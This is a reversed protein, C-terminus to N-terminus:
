KEAPVQKRLVEKNLAKFEVRRNLARGTADANSAVPQGEGYGKVTFQARDLAPFTRLLYDRVAGARRESLGQNYAEAGQSDTHGGIEIKLQPWNVLISGVSDLYQHSEPKLEAKGSAFKITELRILGADLLMTEMAQCGKADVPAGAPTNPCVDVGDPVGDGDSDAPCGTADVAAGAPTNACQDIGDPVGDGDGDIPCGTADVKAGAPTDACKDVGDFVGDGDSDMPCGTADVTAGSPTNACQDIGDFVGDSDGDIPCGRADVRAGRPTAACRDVRNPIGDRDDDPIRGFLDFEIGATYIYNHRWDDPDIGIGDVIVDRFEARIGVRENMQIKLGGGIEWGNRKLDTVDEDIDEDSPSFELETWGGVVYPVIMKSPMLNVIVDGGYHKIDVDLDDPTSAPSLGYHGEVGLWSNFYLAARGGFIVANDVGHEDWDAGGAYPTLGIHFGDVAAQAAGLWLLSAVAVLALTRRLDMAQVRRVKVAAQAVTAM